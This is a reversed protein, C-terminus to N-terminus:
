RGKKATMRLWRSQENQTAFPRSHSVAIQQLLTLDFEKAQSKDPGFSPVFKLGMAVILRLVVRRFLDYKKIDALLDGHFSVKIDFFDAETGVRELAIKSFFVVHPEHKAKYEHDRCPVEVFLTGGPKLFRTMQRLAEVPRLTHELVHSVVVLDFGGVVKDADEASILKVGMDCLYSHLSADSEVVYYDVTANTSAYNNLFAAAFYGLGPGVELVSSINSFSAGMERQIHAIRIKAVAENFAVTIPARNLGGHASAFYSNNYDSWAEASVEPSLYTL